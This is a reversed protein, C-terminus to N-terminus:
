VIFDEGDENGSRRHRELESETYMDLQIETIMNDIQDLIGQSMGTMHAQVRRKQIEQMRLDLEELKSRKPQKKM